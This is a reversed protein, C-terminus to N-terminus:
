GHKEGKLLFHREHHELVAKVAYKRKSYGTERGVPYGVDSARPNEPSHNGFWRTVYKVSDNEFDYIPLYERYVHGIEKDGNRLVIEAYGEHINTLMWYRYKLSPRHASGM